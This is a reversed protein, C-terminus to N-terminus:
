AFAPRLKIQQTLRYYQYRLYNSLFKGAAANLKDAMWDFKGNDYSTRILNAKENLRKVIYSIDEKSYHNFDFNRCIDILNVELIDTDLTLDFRKGLIAEELERDRRKSSIRNVLNRFFGM